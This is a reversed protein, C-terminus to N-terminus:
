FFNFIFFKIVYITFYTTSFSFFNFFLHLYGFFFYFICYKVKTIILNLKFRIKFYIKQYESLFAYVFGQIYNNINNKDYNKNNIEYRYVHEIDSIIDKILYIENYKGKNLLNLIEYQNEMNNELNFRTLLSNDECIILPLELIKKEIYTRDKVHLKSLFNDDYQFGLKLLKKTIINWYEDM